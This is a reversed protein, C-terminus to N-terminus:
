VTNKNDKKNGYSVRIIGYIPVTVVNSNIKMSTKTETYWWSFIIFVPIKGGYAFEPYEWVPM